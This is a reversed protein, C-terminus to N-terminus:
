RTEARTTPTRPWTWMAHPDGPRSSPVSAMCSAPPGTPQAAELGSIKMITSTRATGSSTSSVTKPRRTTVAVGTLAM